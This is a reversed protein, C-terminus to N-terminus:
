SMLLESIYDYIVSIKHKTCVAFNLIKNRKAASVDILMYDNTNKTTCLYDSFIKKLKRKYKPNSIIIKRKSVFILEKPISLFKDTLVKYELIIYDFEKKKYKKSLKDIYINKSFSFRKKKGKQLSNRELIDIRTVLANNNLKDLFNSDFNGIILVKGNIKGIINNM